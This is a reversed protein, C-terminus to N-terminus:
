LNTRPSNKQSFYIKSFHSDPDKSLTDFTGTEVVRGNDFVYIRDVKRLTSVRHAIIIITKDNIKELEEQFQIETRSDLSSTAEDFILIPSNKYIARSIGVRQREGGSLHYGKEGILTEIGEPLKEIVQKLQSVEIAKKFLTPNLEKLLTINEKLSFNFMESEQLVLTINKLVEDPNIKYFDINDILYKGNDINYLGVLLKAVTSKGSGTRGVIGIKENRSITFGIDHLDRDVKEDIKKYSFTANEISIKKWNIPFNLKGKSTKNSWFIPMMRNIRIRCDVLTEYAQMYMGSSDILARFYGYYIVISGVTLAGDYVDLGILLLFMAHCVGMFMGWNRWMANYLDIMQYRREKKLKEKNAIHDVFEDSAGLTKITLLNNLGEVYSGSAKEVSDYYEENVKSIKTFFYNFILFFGTLFFVFFGFYKVNLFIFVVLVSIFTPIIQVFHNEILNGLESFATQGNQIKQAKAGTLDDDHWRLSFNLLKEFGDVGIRYVIDARIKASIKKIKMRVYTVAVISVVFWGLYQYFTDLSSGKKHTSFFDIIKGLVFPPVLVYYLYLIYTVLQTSFYVLRRKYTLYWFGKFFDWWKPSVEEKKM